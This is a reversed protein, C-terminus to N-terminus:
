AQTRPALQEQERTAFVNPPMPGDEDHWKASYPRLCYGNSVPWIRLVRYGYGELLDVLQRASTGQRSLHSDELELILDPGYERLLQDAGLLAKWEAGELDLKVLKVESRLRPSLVADLTTVAVTEHRANGIEPPAFSSFGSADGDFSLLTTTGSFDALAEPRTEIWGFGNLEVNCELAKRAREAPEFAIVRGAPGVRAAAVLTFLGVNAGGDVFADRPRLRDRVLDLEPTNLGYRYLGLGLATRLDAVIRSRGSDYPVVVRALGPIRRRLASVGIRVAMAPRLWIPRAQNSRGSVM